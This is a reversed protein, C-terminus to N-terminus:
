PPLAGLSIDPAKCPILFDPVLNYGEPASCDMLAQHCHTSLNVGVLRSSDNEMWMERDTKGVREGLPGSSSRPTM